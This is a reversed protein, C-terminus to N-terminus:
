LYGPSQMSDQLQMHIAFALFLQASYYTIMVLARGQLLRFQWIASAAILMDSTYFMAAGAAACVGAIDNRKLLLLTGSWLLASLIMFYAVILVLLVTKALPKLRVPIM